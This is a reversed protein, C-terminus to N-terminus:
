WSWRGCDNGYVDFLRRSPEYGHSELAHALKRLIRAVETDAAGYGASGGDEGEEDCFAAGETEITLTFAM